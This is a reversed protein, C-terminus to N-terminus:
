PSNSPVHAELWGEDVAGVHSQVITGRPDVVFLTPLASIGYAAQLSGDRDHVTPYSGGLRAHADRVFADDRNGEVNIGVITVDPHARAFADLSPVSARCPPCWSAWFDLVVVRGHLAELDIRDGDIAGAGGVVPSAFPRAHEGVLRGGGGGACLDSTVMMVFTFAIAAAGIARLWARSSSPEGGDGSSTDHARPGRPEPPISM